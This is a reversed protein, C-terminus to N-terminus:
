RMAQPCPRTKEPLGIKRARARLHKSHQHVTRDSVMRCDIRIATLLSTREKGSARFSGGNRSMEFSSGSLPLPEFSRSTNHLRWCRRSGGGVLHQFRLRDRMMIGLVVTGFNYTFRISGVSCHVTRSGKEM